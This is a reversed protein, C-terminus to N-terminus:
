ESAALANRFSRGDGYAIDDLRWRGDERALIFEARKVAFADSFDVPVAARRGKIEGRRVAFRTPYDQSDTYPDGNIPPPEDEPFDRSFYDAVAAALSRTLFASKAAAAPESFGMDGNFHRELLAEVVGEPSRKPARTGYARSMTWVVNDLAFLMADADALHFEWVGSSCVLRVGPVPGEPFGLAAAAPAGLGELGGMFLGEPPVSTPEYLAGACGLPAPARVAAAAFVARAGIWGAEVPAADAWPAVKGHTVRWAGLLANPEAQAPAAAALVLLWFLKRLM